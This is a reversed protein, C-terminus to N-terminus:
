PNKTLSYFMYGHAAIFYSSMALPQCGATPNDILQRGLITWVWNRPNKKKLNPAQSYFLTFPSGNGGPLTHCPQAYGNKHQACYFAGCDICLAVCAHVNAVILKVLFYYSKAYNRLKTQTQGVVKDPLGQPFDAFAMAQPRWIEVNVSPGEM